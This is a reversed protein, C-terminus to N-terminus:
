RPRGRTAGRCVSDLTQPEPNLYFTFDELYTLALMRTRAAYQSDLSIARM